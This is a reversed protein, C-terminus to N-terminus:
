SNDQQTGFITPAAGSFAWDPAAKIARGDVVVEQPSTAGIVTGSLSGTVGNAGLHGIPYSNISSYTQLLLPRVRSSHNSRSGHIACANHVTVSGAPGALWTVPADGDLDLAEVDENRMAGAWNGDEDYQNYLRGLHSGPLVGMPGMEDDVEDLYVGITLPSFDTHPWFQIDQHWLVPEGGESWKFNLKSHHFRASGGLLTCALRAIPGELALERFTSHVDVPSLLRRLRPTEATHGPALDILRTSTTVDRSMEVFDNAAARLRKLWDEDIFGPLLLYGDRDYDEQDEQSVIEPPALFTM